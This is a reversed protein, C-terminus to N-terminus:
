TPRGQLVGGLGIMRARPKGRQGSRRKPQIGWGDKLAVFSGSFHIVYRFCFVVYRGRNATNVGCISQGNGGIGGGEEFKYLTRVFEPNVVFVQRNARLQNRIHRFQPDSPDLPYVALNELVFGFTEAVAGAM